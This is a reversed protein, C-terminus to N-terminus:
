LKAKGLAENHKLHAPSVIAELFEVVPTLYWSRPKVGSFFGLHGGHKVLAMATYPNERIKDMPLGHAPVVPDDMSNIALFPARIRDLYQTTSASDYLEWCDRYGLVRVTVLTDIESIRKAKLLADMDFGLPHSKIMELNRKVVRLQSAVVLPQFVNNNLLTDADLLRGTLTMDFPCCIAVGASLLSSTGHEGMYKTLLLAGMSFAVGVLPAQPYTAHIHQLTDHFDDADRLNYLKPSTLPTRGLGRHNMVVVRYGSGGGSLAKVLCRIHYEYSSGGVGAMVVAIPGTPNTDRKPYWDLSITGNDSMTRLERDYVIDSLHDRKLTQISCYATQLIGSFLYPTPIMYALSPNTLSPCHEDLISRISQFGRKETHTDSDPDAAIIQVRCDSTYRKHGYYLATGVLAAGTLSLEYKSM